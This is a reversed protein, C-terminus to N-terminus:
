SRSCVPRRGRRGADLAAIRAHAHPSRVVYGRAEHAAKRRRRLPGEGASPPFGGGAAGADRDIARGNDRRGANAGLRIIARLEGPSWIQVSFARSATGAAAWAAEACARLGMVSGGMRRSRLRSWLRSRLWPPFPQLAARRRDVARPRFVLSGRGLGLRGLGLLSLLRSLSLSPIPIPSPYPSYAPPPVEYVQPPLGPTTQTIRWSGDAQQCAEVVAQQPQGGVTLPVTYSTCTPQAPPPQTSATPTPQPQGATPAALTADPLPQCAGCALAMATGLTSIRRM